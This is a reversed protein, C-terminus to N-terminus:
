KEEVMEVALRLRKTAVDTELRLYRELSLYNYRGFYDRSIEFSCKMGLLSSVHNRRALENRANKSM